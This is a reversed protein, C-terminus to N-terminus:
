LTDPAGRDNDNGDRRERPDHNVEVAVGEPVVLYGGQAGHGLRVLVEVRLQSDVNTRRVHAVHDDHRRWVFLRGEGDRFLDARSEIFEDILVHDATKVARSVIQRALRGLM